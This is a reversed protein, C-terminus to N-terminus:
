SRHVSRPTPIEGSRSGITSPQSAAPRSSSPLSTTTCETMPSGSAPLPSSVRSGRRLRSDSRYSPVNASRSATGRRLRTGLGSDSDKSSAAQRGM